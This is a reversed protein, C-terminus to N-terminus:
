RAAGAGSMLHYALLDRHQTPSGLILESTRARKYFLHAPHEWTFGIGGHIHINDDAVQSFMQSCFAKATSSALALEYVDDEDVSAAHRLAARAAEVAVLMDACKHKISQFGGISRGFQTRLKAYDVSMELARQAGGVQEAALAICALGLMRTVAPAGQGDAGIIQGPTNLLSVRAQKRTPDITTMASVTLGPAGREVALITPGSDTRALVFIVEASMGDVVFM